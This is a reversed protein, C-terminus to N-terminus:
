AWVERPLDLLVPAVRGRLAEGYSVGARFGWHRGRREVEASWAPDNLMTPRRGPGRQFQSRYCALAALKDEWTGSVDFILSPEEGVACTELLAEPRWREAPEPLQLDRPWTRATPWAPQLTALNALFAARAALPPLARHDPHRRSEPAVALWRPCLRRIVAVLASTQGPDEPSLFGDPLSLQLRGSLGLRESATAAEAWREDPTANSALEGRTLDCVWIRRGALSLLRLSGGLAIEADDTHASVVLLDVGAKDTRV